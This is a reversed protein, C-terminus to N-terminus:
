SSKSLIFVISIDYKQTIMLEIEAGYRIRM